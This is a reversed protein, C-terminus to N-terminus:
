WKRRPPATREEEVTSSGWRDILPPAVRAIVDGEFVYSMRGIGIVAGGFPTRIDKRDQIQGIVDEPSVVEGLNITPIFFGESDVNVQQLSGMMTNSVEISDGPIIGTIRLFNTIAEKVEVAAQPDVEGRGARMEITVAPIGEHAVEVHMAGRASASQVVFPLSLQSALNRVHIYDRHLAVIHSVCSLHGTRLHIVYQAQVARRWIAWATRETVSGRENGPFTVDLDKSDLPSVQVGLRFPLPNAVPLVTVSGDIRDLEQLHKMILYAAYVDTASVGNMGAVVLVNPREDGYTYFGLTSGTKLDIDVADVTPKVMSPEEESRYARM